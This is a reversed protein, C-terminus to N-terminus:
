TLCNPGTCPSVCASPHEVHLCFNEFLLFHCTYFSALFFSSLLSERGIPAPTNSQLLVLDAFFTLIHLFHLVHLIHLVHLARLVHLAHMFHLAHLIRASTHTHANTHTTNYIHWPRWLRLPCFLLVPSNFHNPLRGPAGAEAATVLLMGASHRPDLRACHAPEATPDTRGEGVVLGAPVTQRLRLFTSARARRDCLPTIRAKPTCRYGVRM